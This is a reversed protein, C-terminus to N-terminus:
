YELNSQRKNISNIVIFIMIFIIVLLSHLMVKRLHVFDQYFKEIKDKYREKHKDIHKLEEALKFEDTIIEGPLDNM